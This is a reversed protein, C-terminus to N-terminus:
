TCKRVMQSHFLGGIAYRQESLRLLRASWRSANASLELESSVWEVPINQTFTSLDSFNSLDGLDLLQQQISV